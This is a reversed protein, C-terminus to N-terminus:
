EYKVLAPDPSTPPQYLSCFDWSPPATQIAAWFFCTGYCYLSAEQDSQMDASMGTKNVCSKQKMVAQAWHTYEKSILDTKNSIGPTHSIFDYCWKTWSRMKLPM